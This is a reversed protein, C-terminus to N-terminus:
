NAPPKPTAPGNKLQAVEAQGDAVQQRLAASLLREQRLQEVFTALQDEALKAQQDKIQYRTLLTRVQTTMAVLQPGWTTAPTQPTLVQDTVLQRYQEGVQIDCAEHPPPTQAWIVIASFILAMGVVGGLVVNELPTMPRQM